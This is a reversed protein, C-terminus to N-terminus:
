FRIIEVEYKSIIKYGYDYCCTYTGFKIHKQQHTFHALNFGHSYLLHIPISKKRPLQAHIEALIRRNKQLMGNIRRICNNTIGNQINHYSTRCYCDCFKKDARGNIKKTCYICQKAPTEM